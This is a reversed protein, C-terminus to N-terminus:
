GPRRRCGRRNRNRGERADMPEVTLSSVVPCENKEEPCIVNTCRTESCDLPDPIRVHPARLYEYAASVNSDESQAAPDLYTATACIEVPGSIDHACAYTTERAFPDAINGSVPTLETRVELGNDFPPNSVSVLLDTENRGPAIEVPDATVTAVPCDSPTGRCGSILVLLLLVCWLVASRTTKVAPM